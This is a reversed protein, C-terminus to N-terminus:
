EEIVIYITSFKFYRLKKHAGKLISMAKKLSSRM